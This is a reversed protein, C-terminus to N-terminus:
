KSRAPRRRRFSLNSSHPSPVPSEKLIKRSGSSSRRFISLKTTRILATIDGKGMILTSFKNYIVPVSEGNQDHIESRFAPLIDSIDSICSFSTASNFSLFASATL